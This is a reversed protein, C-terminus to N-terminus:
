KEAVAIINQTYVGEGSGTEVVMYFRLIMEIIKWLFFRIASKLGHPVPGTPYFNIRGFGTVRLIHSLSTRTFSM